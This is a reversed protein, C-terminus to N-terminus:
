IICESLYKWRAGEVELDGEAVAPPAGVFTEDRGDCIEDADCRGVEGM